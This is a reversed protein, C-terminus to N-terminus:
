VQKRFQMIVNVDPSVAAFVLTNGDLYIESLGKKYLYLKGNFEEPETLEFEETDSDNQMVLNLYMYYKGNEKYIQAKGSANITYNPLAISNGNIYMRYADYNGTYQDLPNIDEKQCSTLAFLIFVPTFIFKKM